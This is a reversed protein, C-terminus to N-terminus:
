QFESIKKKKQEEREHASKDDDKYKKLEDKINEVHMQVFVDLRYTERNNSQFRILMQFFLTLETVIVSYYPFEVRREVMQSAQYTLNVQYAATYQKEQITFAREFSYDLFAIAENIERLKERM